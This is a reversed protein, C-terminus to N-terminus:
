RDQLTIKSYKVETGVRKFIFLTPSLNSYTDVEFSLETKDSQPSNNILEKAKELYHVQKTIKFLILYPLWQNPFVKSTKEWLEVNDINQLWIFAVYSAAGKHSLLKELIEKSEQPIFRIMSDRHARYLPFTPDLVVSKSIYIFKKSIDKSNCFLDYYYHAKAINSQVPSIYIAFLVILLAKLFSYPLPSRINHSNGREANVIVSLLVPYFALGNAPMTVLLAAVGVISSLITLNSSPYLLSYSTLLILVTGIIGLEILLTLLISHPDSVLINTPQLDAKFVWAKTGLGWGVLPSETIEAFAEKWMWYRAVISSRDLHLLLPSVLIITVALIKRIRPIILALQLLHGISGAVSNVLFVIISLLFPLIKAKTDILKKYVVPWTSILFLLFPLHHGFIIGWHNVFFLRAILETFALVISIATIIYELTDKPISRFLQFLTVFAISPIIEELGARPFPSLYCSFILYVLTLIQYLNLKFTVTSYISPIILLLKLTLPQWWLVATRSSLYVILLLYIFLVIKSIKKTM